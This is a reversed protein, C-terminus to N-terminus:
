IEIIEPELKINTKKFVQSTIELQLKKIDNYTAGGLNIIFGAHKKSVAAGGIQLGMLGCQEIIASAYGNKPRKFFSGASPFELPQKTKRRLILDNMKSM